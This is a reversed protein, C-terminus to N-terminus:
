KERKAKFWFVSGENEVSSVGYSFHHYDLIEKIISLGLGTGQTSRTHAKDVRYYRKWVYELDEKKIGIGYDKFKITVDSDTVVQWVEVIKSDGSYNIANTLFNYIVQAIKSPDGNIYVVEDYKFDIKFNLHEIFKQQRDVIEKICTTLNFSQMNFNETGATIKSLILLDSVLNKLRSTEDIIIQLNEKTNEEPFDRLMEAYGSILTLPTRLDHSVNAILERKLTETKKLEKIAYNLTENLDNIESFGTGNFVLDYNGHGLKLAEKNMNILPKSIKRSIFFAVLVSMALVIITIYLLQTKLTNIAPDVPTIRSYLIIMYSDSKDSLEVRECYIIDNNKIIKESDSIQQHFFEHEEDNSVVFMPKAVKDIQNFTDSLNINIKKNFDVMDSSPFICLYEVNPVDQPNSPPIQEKKIVFVDAELNKVLSTIEKSLSSDNNKLEAVDAQDIITYLENMLEKTQKIKTRRYVKDLLFIQFICFVIIISLGFAIIVSFLQWKLSVKNLKL